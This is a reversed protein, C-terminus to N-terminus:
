KLLKEAKELDNVKFVLYVDSGASSYAYEINIEAEAFKTLVDKLSGPKNDGYVILVETSKVIFGAKELADFAEDPKDPLLRVVGFDATEAISLADLNINADSLIKTVEYLKGKKNSVFVSIQKRTM